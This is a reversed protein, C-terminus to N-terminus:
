IIEKEEIKPHSINFPLVDEIKDLAKKSMSQKKFSKSKHKKPREDVIGALRPSSKATLLSHSVRQKEVM